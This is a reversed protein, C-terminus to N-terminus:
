VAGDPSMKVLKIGLGPTRATETSKVYRDAEILDSLSHQEVSGADGVVKKPGAANERLVDALDSKKEMTEEPM